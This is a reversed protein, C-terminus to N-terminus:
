SVHIGCAFFHYGFLPHGHYGQTDYAHSFKEKSKAKLVRQSERLNATREPTKAM